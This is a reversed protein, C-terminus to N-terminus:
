VIGGFMNLTREFHFEEVLEGLARAQNISDRSTKAFMDTLVTDKPLSLLVDVLNPNQLLYQRWLEKYLQWQREITMENIPPKGKGEKISGYGKITCQYWAEICQGRGDICVWAYFASFRKDGYSSCEYGNIHEVAWRM